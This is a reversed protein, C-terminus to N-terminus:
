LTQHNSNNKKMIILYQCTKVKLGIKKKKKQELNRLLASMIRCENFIAKCNGRYIEYKSGHSLREYITFAWLWHWGNLLVSTRLLLPPRSLARVQGWGGGGDGM